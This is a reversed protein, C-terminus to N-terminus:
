QERPRALLPDFLPTAGGAEAPGHEHDDTPPGAGSTTSSSTTPAMPVTGRPWPRMSRSQSPRGGPEDDARDGGPEAAYGYANLAEDTDFAEPESAEEEPPALPLFLQCGPCWYTM